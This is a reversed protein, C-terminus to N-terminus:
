GFSENIESFLKITLDRSKIWLRRSGPNQTSSKQDEELLSVDVDMCPAGGFPFLSFWGHSDIAKELGQFGWWPPPPAVLHSSAVFPPLFHFFFDLYSHKIYQCIISYINICYIYIYTHLMGQTYIYIYMTIICSKNGKEPIELCWTWGGGVSTEFNHASIWGQIGSPIRSEEQPFASNKM